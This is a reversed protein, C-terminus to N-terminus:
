GGGSPTRGGVGRGRSRGGARRGMALGEVDCSPSARKRTTEAAANRKGRGALALLCASRKRFNSEALRGPPEGTGEM